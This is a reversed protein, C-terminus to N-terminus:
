LTAAWPYAARTTENWPHVKLGYSTLAGGPHRYLRPAICHLYRQETNHFDDPEFAAAIASTALDALQLEEIRGPQDIKGPRAVFRWDIQCGAEQRLVAEYKRLKDLKFRVIHSLTYDLETRHARALWSLRELLYRFTYLYARDEDLIADERPFQRKCVIVSSVTLFEAVGLTQAIYLRQPHSRINAWHLVDTPRRHLHARLDVLLRTVSARDQEQAAVAGMIFHDRAKHSHSRDGSEDIYAYLM